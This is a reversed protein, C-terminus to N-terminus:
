ASDPGKLFTSLFLPSSRLSSARCYGAPRSQSLVAPLKEVTIAMADKDPRNRDTHKAPKKGGLCFTVALLPLSWFLLSTLVGLTGRLCLSSHVGVFTTFFGPRLRFRQGSLFWGAGM